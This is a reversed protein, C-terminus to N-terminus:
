RIPGRSALTALAQALRLGVPRKVDGFRAASWRARRPWHDIHGRALALEAHVIMVISYEAALRRAAGTNLAREALDSAEDLEGVEALAEALNASTMLEGSHDIAERLTLTERYLAIAERLRPDDRSRAAAHVLAARNGLLVAQREFNGLEEALEMAVRYIRSATELDGAFAHTGALTIRVDLELARGGAQRAVILSREAADIATDIEGTRARTWAEIILLRTLVEGGLREAAPRAREIMAM